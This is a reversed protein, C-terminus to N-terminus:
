FLTVILQLKRGEFASIRDDSVSGVKTSPLLFTESPRQRKEELVDVRVQDATILM